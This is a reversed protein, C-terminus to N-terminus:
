RERGGVIVRGRVSNRMTGTDILPNTKGGKARITSPALPPESVATITRRVDSAVREAFATLVSVVRARGALIKGYAKDLRANYKAQHEDHNRRLWSREPIHGDRTGFEHVAGIQAVTLESGEHQVGEGEFLGVDVYADDVTKLARLLARWGLDKDETKTIVKLM